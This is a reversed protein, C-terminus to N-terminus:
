INSIRNDLENKPKARGISAMEDAIIKNLSPETKFRYRRGDFDLFWCKDELESLTKELLTPDDGPQLMALHLDAPDVGTAIGQTLSHVFISTAARRAFPPKGAELLPQDIEAAHSSSGTRPTYIDAEM